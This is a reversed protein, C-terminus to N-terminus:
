SAYRRAVPAWILSFHPNTELTRDFWARAAAQRGLCREIMGRHFFALADKTGLRLARNSFAAAERCRGNRFLAWALVNAAQVSPAARYALRARALADPARRRHDLDFLATQLETRVGNAALLREITEVLAYSRQAEGRRGAAALTDGLWIAYEPLPLADVVKRFRRVASAYEGRAAEVRALGAEARLYGPVKALAKAYARQARVLQGTSFRINGLQVLTAAVHEPVSADLELALRAADAAAEPRGLLERAFAIRAYSAVSPSLAAMRDFAAFAERYRGVNAFADGLAGYATANEPDARLARRALPLAERFRHRSVALSALGTMVLGEDAGLQQARRLAYESRDYFTPEATERARQQYAFGLLILTDADAGSAAVREELRRVYRGTKEDSIGRLLEGLVDQSARAEALRREGAASASPSSDVFAGGLLAACTAITVTLAAAFIRTRTM